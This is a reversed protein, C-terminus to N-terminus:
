SVKVPFQLAPNQRLMRYMREYPWDGASLYSLKPWNDRIAMERETKSPFRYVFAGDFAYYHNKRM